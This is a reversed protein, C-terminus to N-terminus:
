AEYRRRLAVMKRELEMIRVRQEEIMTIAESMAQSADNLNGVLSQVMDSLQREAETWNERSM